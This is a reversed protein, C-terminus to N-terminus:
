LERGQAGIRELLAGLRTARRKYRLGFGMLGFKVDFSRDIRMLEWTGVDGVAHLFSM